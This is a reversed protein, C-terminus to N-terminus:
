ERPGAQAVQKSWWHVLAEAASWLPLLSQHPNSPRQEAAPARGPGGQGARPSSCAAGAGAPPQTGGRGAGAGCLRSWRAQSDGSRRGAALMNQDCSRSPLFVARPATQHTPRRRRREPRRREFGRRAAVRRGAGVAEGAEGRQEAPNSGVALLQVLAADQLDIHCVGPARRPRPSPPGGCRQFKRRCARRASALWAATHARSREGIGGRQGGSLEQRARAPRRSSSGARAGM